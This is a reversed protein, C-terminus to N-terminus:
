RLQVRLLVELQFPPEDFRQAVLEINRRRRRM